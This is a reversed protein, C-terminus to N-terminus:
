PYERNHHQIMRLIAFGMLLLIALTLSLIPDFMASFLVLLTAIFVM